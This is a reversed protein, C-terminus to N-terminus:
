WCPDQLQLPGRAIALPTLWTFDVV